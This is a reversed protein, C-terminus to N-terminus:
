GLQGSLWDLYERDGDQVRLALIEPVQYSHLLRIASRVAEFHEETTKIVLLLEADDCIRGEWRYISRIGPVISVCAAQRQEVLASAIRQAREPSDATSLVIVAAM